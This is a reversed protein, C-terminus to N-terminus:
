CRGRRRDDVVGRTHALYAPYVLADVDDDSLRDHFGAHGDADTPHCLFRWCEADVLEAMVIWLASFHAGFLVLFTALLWLRPGLRNGGFLMLGLFGGELFFAFVGKRPWCAALSIAWSAPPHEPGTPALNLSRCSAQPLAM